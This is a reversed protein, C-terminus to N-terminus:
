LIPPFFGDLIYGTVLLTGLLLTAAVNLGMAPVLRELDDFHRSAVMSAKVELPLTALALLATRPILGALASAAILSYAATPFLKFLRSSKNLGLRAPLHNRGGSKDADVDPFENLFLIAGVMIGQAVGIVIPELDIRLTQIYYSGGVVLPGFSLAAAFEGLGRAALATSYYLVCLAAPVLFLLVPLGKTLVFFLGIIMGGATFALGARYVARPSL